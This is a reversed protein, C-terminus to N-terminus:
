ITSAGTKIAKFEAASIGNVPPAVFELHRGDVLDALAIPGATDVRRREQRRILRRVNGAIAPQANTPRPRVAIIASDRMVLQEVSFHGTTGGVGSRRDFADIACAIRNSVQGIARFVFHRHAGHAAGPNTIPRDVFIPRGAGLGNAAYYILFDM